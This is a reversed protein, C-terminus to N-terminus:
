QMTLQSAQSYEFKGSATNLGGVRVFYTGPNLGNITAQTTTTSVASAVNSFAADTAFEVRYYAAPRGSEWSLSGGPTLSSPASFSLGLSPPPNVKIENVQASGQERWYISGPPPNPIRFEGGVARGSVYMESFSTNRAVEVVAGDAVKVVPGGKSEDYDWSTVNAVSGASASQGEAGGAAGEEAPLAAEAGDDAALEGDAAGEEEAAAGEAGSEMGGTADFDAAPLPTEPTVATDFGAEPAIFLFYVAGGVIAISVLAAAVVMMRKRKENEGFGGEKFIQSVSSNGGFGAPGFESPAGFKSGAPSGFSANSNFAANGQGGFTSNGFGSGNFQSDSGGAFGSGGDSKQDNQSM